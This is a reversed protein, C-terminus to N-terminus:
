NIEEDTRKQGAMQLFSKLDQFSILKDKDLDMVEFAMRFDERM